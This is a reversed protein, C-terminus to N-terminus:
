PLDLSSCCCYMEGVASGMSGMMFGPDMVAIAIKRGSIEATGATVAETVEAKKQM